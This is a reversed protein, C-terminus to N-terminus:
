NDNQNILYVKENSKGYFFNERLLIEIYDTDIKETLLLIKHEITNLEEKINAKEIKLNNYLKEKKFYSILGREGDLLNFFVYIFLFTCILVFYNKKIKEVMNM